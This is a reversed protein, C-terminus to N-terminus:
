RMTGKGHGKTACGGGRVKGGSKMGKVKAPNVYGRGAGSDMNNGQLTNAGPQPKKNLRGDPTAYPYNEALYDQLDMSANANDSIVAMEEKSYKTPKRKNDM